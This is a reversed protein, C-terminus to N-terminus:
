KKGKRKLEHAIISYYVDDRLKRMVREREKPSKGEAEKIVSKLFEKHLIELALVLTGQLFIIIDSKIEQGTKYHNYFSYGGAGMLM